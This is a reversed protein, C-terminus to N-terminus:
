MRVASTISGGPDRLFDPAFDDTTINSLIGNYFTTFIRFDLIDIEVENTEPTVRLYDLYREIFTDGQMDGLALIIANYRLVEEPRGTLELIGELYDAAFFEDVDFLADMLALHRIGQSFSPRLHHGIIAATLTSSAREFWELNHSFSTFDLPAADPRSNVWSYGTYRDLVVGTLYISDATRVRMFINENLTMDGGLRRGDGGGFGTQHLAFHAPRFTTYLFRNARNFPRLILREHMEAYFGASPKPAVGAIFVCFIVLPLAYMAFPSNVRMGEDNRQNLYKVLFVASAIIFVYFSLHFTFFGSTLLLAFTLCGLAFLLFFNFLAYGFLAVLLTIGIVMAMIIADEFAPDHPILGNIYLIINSLFYDWNMWISYEEYGRNIHNVLVFLAAVGLISAAIILTYKNALIIRAAVMAVFCMIFLRSYDQAFETASIIATLASWSLMVGATMLIFTDTFKSNKLEEDRTAQLDEFVQHDGHVVAM